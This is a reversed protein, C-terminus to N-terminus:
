NSHQLPYEKFCRINVTKLDPFEAKGELDNMADVQYDVPEWM